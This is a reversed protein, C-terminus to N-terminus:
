TIKLICRRNSHLLHLLTSWLEVKSTSVRENAEQQQAEPQGNPASANSIRSVLSPAQSRAAAKEQSRLWYTLAGPISAAMMSSFALTILARLLHFGLAELPSSLHSCVLELKALPERRFFEDESILGDRDADSAEFIDELMARRAGAGDDEDAFRHSKHVFLLVPQPQRNLVFSIQYLEFVRLFCHNIIPVSVRM